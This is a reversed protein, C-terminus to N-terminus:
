GQLSLFVMGTYPLLGTCSLSVNGRHTVISYRGVEYSKDYNYVDIRLTEYGGNLIPALREVLREDEDLEEFVRERLILGVYEGRVWVVAGVRADPDIEDGFGDDWVM